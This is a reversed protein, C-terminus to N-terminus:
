WIIMVTVVGMYRGVHTVCSLQKDPPVTVRCGVERMDQSGEGVTQLRKNVAEITLNYLVLDALLSVALM